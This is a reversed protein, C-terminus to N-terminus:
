GSKVESRLVRYAGVATPLVVWILVATAFQAWVQGDTKHQYLLTQVSNLDLWRKSGKLAPIASFVATSVNPVAYYAVIAAASVLLLMGFAFGIALGTLQVLVIDRFGGVGYAWSGDAGRAAVAIPNAVAASVFAIGTVLLGLLLVATAKARLVRGRDPVLTFTVLGTRQSWETTVTLLGLLPLLIKEASQAYDVFRDYTLNEPKAVFLMVGVVVPIAAMVVTLLWKGSRTDTLKRLEVRVLRGFSPGTGAAARAPRRIGATATPTTM